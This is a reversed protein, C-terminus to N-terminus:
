CEPFAATYREAHGLVGNFGGGDLGNPKADWLGDLKRSNGARFDVGEKGSSANSAGAKAIGALAM